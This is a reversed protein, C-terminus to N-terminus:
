FWLSHTFYYLSSLLLQLHLSIVLRRLSRVLWTVMQKAWSFPLNHKSAYNHNEKGTVNSGLLKVKIGALWEEWFVANLKNSLVGYFAKSTFSIWLRHKSLSSQAVTGKGTVCSGAGRDGQEQQFIGGALLTYLQFVLAHFFGRVFDEWKMSRTHDGQSMEMNSMVLTHPTGTRAFSMYPYTFTLACGHERRGGSDTGEALWFAWQWSNQVMPNELIRFIM